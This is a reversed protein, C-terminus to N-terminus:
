IIHISYMMAVMESIAIVMYLGLDAKLPPFFHFYNTPSFPLFKKNKTGLAHPKAYGTKNKPYCEKHWGELYVESKKTNFHFPDAERSIGDNILRKCRDYEENKCGTSLVAKRLCVEELM